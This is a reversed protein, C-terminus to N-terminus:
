TQKSSNLLEELLENNELVNRAAAEQAVQKSKGTGSGADTGNIVVKVTFQRDHEPGQEDIVVYEPTSIGEAQLVEQLLSKAHKYLKKQLIDDMKPFLFKELLRTVAAVGQDLYLAGLLAEVTNALLSTNQRGGSAEEGKSMFLKDGLKLDQAVEALTTTKVLASRYATLMGEQEKPFQEYLFETTVLELVADGLYELRENSEESTSIRENLASRHTLATILLDERKFQPIAATM